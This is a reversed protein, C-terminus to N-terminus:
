ASAPISASDTATRANGATSPTVGEPSMVSSPTSSADPGDGDPVTLTPQRADPSVYLM